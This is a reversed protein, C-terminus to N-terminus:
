RIGPRRIGPRRAEAEDLKRFQHAAFSALVVAAIIWLIILGGICAAITLIIAIPDM